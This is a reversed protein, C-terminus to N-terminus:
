RAPEDSADADGVNAGWEILQDFIPLLARGSETLSYEVRVPMENYQVRKVLGDEGLEQLTASLMANTIGHVERKLRNFRMADASSLTWLVPIKWKGGVKDLARRLPCKETYSAEDATKQM